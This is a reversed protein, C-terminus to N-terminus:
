TEIQKNKYLPTIILNLHLVPPKISPFNLLKQLILFLFYLAM